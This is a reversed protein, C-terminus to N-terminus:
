GGDRRWMFFQSGQELCSCTVGSAVGVTVTNEGSQGTNRLCDLCIAIQPDSRHYDEDGGDDGEDGAGEGDDGRVDPLALRQCRLSEASFCASYRTNGAQVSVGRWEDWREPRFSVKATPKPSTRRGSNWNRSNRRQNMHAASIFSISKTDCMLWVMFQAFLLRHSHGSATLPNM